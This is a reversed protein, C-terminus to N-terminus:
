WTSLGVYLLWTAFALPQPSEVAKAFLGDRNFAEGRLQAIGATAQLGDMISYRAGVGLRLHWGGLAGAGDDGWRDLGFRVGLDIGWRDNLEIGSRGRVEVGLTSRKGNSSFTDDFQLVALGPGLWVRRGLRWEVGGSLATFGSADTVAGEVTEGTKKLGSLQAGLGLALDVDVLFTPGDEVLPSRLPSSHEM